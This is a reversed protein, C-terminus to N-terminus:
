AEFADILSNSYFEKILEDHNKEPGKVSYTLVMENSRKAQNICKSRLKCATFVATLEELKSTQNGIITIKYTRNVNSKDIINQFWTFGLLVAMVICLAIFAFQYAGVGISMGIAASIWIVAATTLGKVFSGEKFIAGAGIFGIGTVINSAVRAPDHEGGMVASIITFLTSGVMILIVTRFGAAKTKYERETGIVAGMALAMLLKLIDETINDM